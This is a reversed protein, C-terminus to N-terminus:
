NAAASHSGGAKWWRGVWEAECRRLLIVGHCYAENAVTEDGQSRERQKSGGDASLFLVLGRLIKLCEEVALVQAAPLPEHVIWRFPGLHRLFLKGVLLFLGVVVHPGMPR